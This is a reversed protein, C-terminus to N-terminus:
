FHGSKDDHKEKDKKRIEIKGWEKGKSWIFIGTCM